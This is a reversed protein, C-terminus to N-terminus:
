RVGSSAAVAAAKVSASSTHTKETWGGAKGHLWVHFKWDEWTQLDHSVVTRPDYRREDAAILEDRRAELLEHTAAFLREKERRAEPDPAAGWRGEEGEALADLTAFPDIAAADFLRLVGFADAHSLAAECGAVAVALAMAARNPAEAAWERRGREQWGQREAETWDPQVIVRMAAEPGEGTTLRPVDMATCAEALLAADANTEPASTTKNRKGM